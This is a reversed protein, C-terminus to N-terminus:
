YGMSNHVLRLLRSQYEKAFQTYEAPLALSLVDVGPSARYSRVTLALASQAHVDHQYVSPTVRLSHSSPLKPLSVEVLPTYWLEYVEILYIRM